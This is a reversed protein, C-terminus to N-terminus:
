PRAIRYITGSGYDGVYVRGDADRGFTAIQV